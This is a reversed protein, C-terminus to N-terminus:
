NQWVAYGKERLESALERERREAEKAPVPNLHKFKKWMLYRGYKKVIRSAKYGDQHQKFRVAPDHSTVGVYLCPKGPRHSSNAKVFRPLKAVSDHLRVVYLNKGARAPSPREGSAAKAM